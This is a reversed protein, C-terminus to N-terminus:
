FNEPWGVKEIAYLRAIGIWQYCIPNGFPADSISDLPARREEKLQDALVSKIAPPQGADMYTKTLLFARAEQAREPSRANRRIRNIAQARTGRPQHDRSGAPGSM